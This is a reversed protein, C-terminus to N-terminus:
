SVMNPFTVTAVQVEMFQINDLLFNFVPEGEFHETIMVYNNTDEYISKIKLISHHKSEHLM